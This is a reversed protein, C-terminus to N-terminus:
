KAGGDQKATEKPPIVLVEPKRDVLSVFIPRDGAGGYFGVVDGHVVIKYLRPPPICTEPAVKVKEPEGEGGGLAAIGPIVATVAKLIAAPVVGSDAVQNSETLYGNSFTMTLNLSSLVSYPSAVRKKTPDPLQLVQHALGGKGDSYVLLYLSSEYYVIGDGPGQDEPALPRHRVGACSAQALALATLACRVFVDRTSGRM